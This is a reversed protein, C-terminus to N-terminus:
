GTSGAPRAGVEQRLAVIEARLARIESVLPATEDHVM